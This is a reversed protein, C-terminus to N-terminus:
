DLVVEFCIEDLSRTHRIPQPKTNYGFAVVVSIGYEKENLSLQELLMTENFGGMILSDIGLATAQLVMQSAAFLTQERFYNPRKDVIQEIRQRYAMLKELDFGGQQYKDMFESHNMVYDKKVYLFAILESADVAAQQQNMAEYISSRNGRILVFKWPESGFGSPAKQGAELIRLLDQKSIKKTQDFYRASYRKSIAESVNM